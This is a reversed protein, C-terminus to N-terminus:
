RRSRRPRCSARAACPARGRPTGGCRWRRRPPRTTARCRPRAPGAPALLRRERRPDTAGPRLVGVEAVALVRVLLRRAVRRLASSGADRLGHLQVALLHRVVVVDVRIGRHPGREVEGLGRDRDDLVGVRAADRDRRGACGVGDGVRVPAGVLAVRHRREAADDRRVARHRERHGLRDRADEGLHEDRGRELGFRELEEAFFFFM